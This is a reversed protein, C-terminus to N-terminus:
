AGARFHLQNYPMITINYSFNHGFFLKKRDSGFTKGIIPAMTIMDPKNIIINSLKM